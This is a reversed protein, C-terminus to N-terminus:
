VRASAAAAQRAQPAAIPSLEGTRYRKVVVDLLGRLVPQEVARARRSRRAILGLAGALEGLDVRGDEFRSALANVPLRLSGTLAATPVEWMAYLLSRVAQGAMKRDAFIAALTDEDDRGLACENHDTLM